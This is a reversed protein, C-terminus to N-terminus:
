RCPFKPRHSVNIGFYVVYMTNGGGIARKQSLFTNSQQGFDPVNTSTYLSQNSTAASTAYNQM